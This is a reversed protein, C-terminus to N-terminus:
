EAPRDQERRIQAGSTCRLSWYADPMPQIADDVRARFGLDYQGPTLLLYQEAAVSPLTFYVEVRLATSPSNLASPVVATEVDASSKLSWTFPPAAIRGSFSGDHIEKGSSEPSLAQWIEYAHQYDQANRYGGM